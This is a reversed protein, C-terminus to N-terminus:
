GVSAVESLEAEVQAIGQLHQKETYLARAEELYLIRRRALEALAGSVDVLTDAQLILSDTQRVLAVAERALAQGQELRGDM